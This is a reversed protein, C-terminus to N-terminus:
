DDLIRLEVGIDLTESSALKKGEQDYYRYVKLTVVDGAKHKDLEATLEDYNHVRVSDVEAIVDYMLLGAEEAPSGEEVEMVMIGIPPWNKIPEEPGDFNNVKIGMRPRVVSGTEIIENIYDKVSNIPICFGLGEAATYKVTPIGVLQGRDDLLAGGSNGSNIAADVQILSISRSFNGANIDSRQLGSVVGATVTGYLSVSTTSTSAGPHGIVIATDGLELRDSDGLELVEAGKPAPEEFKLIAIDTGNDYGVLTVDMYIDYDDTDPNYWLIQFADGSEVVHYNTLIYGDESIIFGSGSVASTSTQGFFNQYTVETTIGVAQECAQEYLQALPKSVTEASAIKKAGGADTGLVVSPRANQAEELAEIRRNLSRGVLAAGGVSGLLACVLCLCAVKLFLGKKRPKKEPSVKSPRRPPTYYRPPVTSEDAPAYHADAYIRQTYGSKYQYEGEEPEPEESAPVPTERVASEESEQPRLEPETEPAAEAPASEEVPIDSATETVPDASNTM